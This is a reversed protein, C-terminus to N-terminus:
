LDRNPTNAQSAYIGTTVATAPCSVTVFVETNDWGAVRSVGGSLKGTRTIEKIQTTLTSNITSCTYQTFPARGAFRAGDRVGKAVQHEVYLYHGGEFCMFLLAMVMPTVLATEVAANGSQSSLLSRLVRM